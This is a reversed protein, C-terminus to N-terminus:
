IFEHNQVIFLCPGYGFRVRSFIMLIRCEWVVSADKPEVRQVPFFPLVSPAFSCALLMISLCWVLVWTWIGAEAMSVQYIVKFWGSERAGIWRAPCNLQVPDGNCLFSLYAYWLTSEYVDFLVSFLASEIWRWHVKCSLQVTYFPLIWKCVMASISQFPM